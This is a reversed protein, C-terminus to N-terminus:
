VAVEINEYFLSLASYLLKLEEMVRANDMDILDHEILNRVQFIAVVQRTGPASKNGEAQKKTIPKGSLHQTSHKLAEKFPTNRIKVIKKTVIASIKDATMNLASAVMDQDIGLELGKKIANVKENGYLFKGHKANLRLADLYREKDDAYTQYEAMIEADDGLFRKLFTVRHVGDILKLTDKCVRIPDPIWGCQHAQYMQEVHISDIQSRPYLNGDFIVESVKIKKTLM